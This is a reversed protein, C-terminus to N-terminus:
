GYGMRDSRNNGSLRGRKDTAGEIVVTIKVKDAGKIRVGEILEACFGFFCAIM